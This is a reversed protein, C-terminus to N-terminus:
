TELPNEVAFIKTAYLKIVFLVPEAIKNLFFTSNKIAFTWKIIIIVFNKPNM